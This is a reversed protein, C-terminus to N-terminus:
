IEEEESWLGEDMKSGFRTKLVGRTYQIKTMSPSGDGDYPVAHGVLQKCDPFYNVEDKVHQNWMEKVQECAAVNKYGEKHLILFQKYAQLVRRAHSEKWGLNHMCLAVLFSAGQKPLTDLSDLDCLWWTKENFYNLRSNIGDIRIEVIEPIKQGEHSSAAHSEEFTTSETMSLGGHLSDDDDHKHSAEFISPDIKRSEEEPEKMKKSRFSLSRFSRVSRRDEHVSGITERGRGPTLNRMLGRSPSRRPPIQNSVNGLAERRRDPTANRSTRIRSPTISRLLGSRRPHRAPPPQPAATRRNSVEAASPAM